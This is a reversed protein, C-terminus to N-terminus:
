KKDAPPLAATRTFLPRIAPTWGDSHWTVTKPPSAKTGEILVKNGDVVRAIWGGGEVASTLSLAVDEATAAPELELSIARRTGNTAELRCVSRITVSAAWSSCDIELATPKM